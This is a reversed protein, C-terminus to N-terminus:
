PDRKGAINMQSVHGSLIFSSSPTIQMIKILSMIIVSLSVSRTCNKPEKKYWSRMAFIIEM